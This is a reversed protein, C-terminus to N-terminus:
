VVRALRDPKSVFPWIVPESSREAGVAGSRRKLENVLRGRVGREFGDVPFYGTVAVLDKESPDGPGPRGVQAVAARGSRQARCATM